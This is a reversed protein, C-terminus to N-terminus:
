KLLIMKQELVRSMIKEQLFKQVVMVGCTIYVSMCVCTSCIRKYFVDFYVVDSELIDSVVNSGCIKGCSTMHRTSLPSPIPGVVKEGGSVVQWTAFTATRANNVFTVTAYLCWLM